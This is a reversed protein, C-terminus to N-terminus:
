PTGKAKARLDAASRREQEYALRFVVAMRRTARDGWTCQHQNDMTKILDALEKPDPAPLMKLRQQKGM